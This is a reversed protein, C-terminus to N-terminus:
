QNTKKWSNRHYVGPNAHDGEEFDFSVYDIGTLETFSYTTTIMFSMAGASGMQQTLVESDSISIFATDNSIRTYKVQVRPWLSNNIKEIIEGTLLDGDVSRIQKLEFDESQQNYDYRWIAGISDNDMSRLPDITNTDDLGNSKDDPQSMNCSIFILILVASIFKTKM